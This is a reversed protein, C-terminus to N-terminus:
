QAMDHVNTFSGPGPLPKETMNYQICDFDISVTNKGNVPWVM